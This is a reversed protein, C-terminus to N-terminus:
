TEMLERWIRCVHERHEALEDGSVVSVADRLANAHARVRYARYADTLLRAEEQRMLGTKDCGDLLRINDTYDLYDGLERAWRLVAYQVMFEIDAIGGAGQKLDFDTRTDRALNARMRERMERVERKLQVPDRPRLLIERRLAMFRKRLGPEGTVVRARVLAQQEWTWASERLYGALGNISNVLMGKAGDPRLRADIEYLVGDATRTTIFHIIRQAVRLFFRANDIVKPGHTEQGEGASGHIFVLDLDSGYGLEFGGLKGYAVIAFPARQRKGGIRCGPEGHRAVLDRLAFKSAQALTIEAIDTLHDSVVMLPMTNTVDASAVRLVNAHKFQRLVAMEEETDGPTVNAVRADMDGILAAQDLPAYLTGPDILEDLLMPHREIELAIWPSARCLQVFRSLAIPRECLLAIYASRRAITEVIRLVRSLTTVAARGKACARVLDPMLRKLRTRAHTDLFRVAHTESFRRVVDYADTGCEFGEASLLEAARTRDLNGAWLSAIADEPQAEIEIPGLVQAFHAHVRHRQRDLETKFTLWDPFGTGAALATRALEDGPLTHQQRDQMQQLRHETTRLFRYARDLEEAAYGPLLGLRGLSEIVRLTRRERLGPVRGGRVLQFAHGTFEIERIGGAGLEVDDSLEGRAVEDTISRKMERISELAGFDLYRRYVFPRLYELLGAGDASIARARILAYREWDLGHNQYYDELASFSAVLPGGSGFPRLRTGVRFVIGDQTRESLTQVLERGLRDFFAENSLAKRGGACGGREPYAFLLDIDSSFNLEEAGLKGLAYVALRVQRGRADRPEGAIAALRRHLVDCTANIAADAFASTELMTQSLDGLGAIDRWAIRVMERQRVRRLARKLEENDPDSGIARGLGALHLSVRRAQAADDEGEAHSRALDGSEHLDSLMEPRRICSEAVFESLAWVREADGPGDDMRWPDLGAARAARAYRAVREEALFRLGDPLPIM